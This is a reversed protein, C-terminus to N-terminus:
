VPSLEVSAPDTGADRALSKFDTETQTSPTKNQHELQPNSTLWLQETEVSAEWQPASSMPSCICLCVMVMYVPPPLPKYEDRPPEKLEAEAKM